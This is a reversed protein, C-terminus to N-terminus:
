IGLNARYQSLIDTTGVKYINALVDIEMILVGNIELKCYTVSFNTEAEVNDHQKFNGMPFDKASATMYCVVPQQATRGSSTYTELSSRVQINMPKTPDGTKLLVDPYFSNWKIKAEMKDIGSWFEVKGVMGLAKHEALMHKIMPLNVEEAKGLKSAGDIYVNANTLRNVQIAM